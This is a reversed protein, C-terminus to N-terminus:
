AGGVATQSSEATVEMEEHKQSAGEAAPANPRQALDPSDPAVPVIGESSTALHKVQESKWIGLLKERDAVKSTLDSPGTGLLFSKALSFCVTRGVAATAECWAAPWFLAEGVTLNRAYSRGELEEVQAPNLAKLNAQIDEAPLLKGHADKCFSLDPCPFFLLVQKQGKVPVEWSALDEYEFGM